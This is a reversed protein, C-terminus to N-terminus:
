FVGQAGLAGMGVWVTAGRGRHSRRTAVRGEKDTGSTTFLLVTGAAVGIAGMVLGVNAISAYTKARDVDPTASLPCRPPSGCIDDLESRKVYAAIGFGAAVSLGAAGLGYAGYVWPSTQKPAPPPAEPARLVLTMETGSTVQKTVIAPTEGQIRIIFVQSGPDLLIEFTDFGPAEPPGPPRTGALFEPTPTEQLTRELPRGNVTVLAGKPAITVRARALKGTVEGLYKRAENLMPEELRGWQGSEHATIAALFGKRARTYRALARECYAMDYLTIPHPRLAASREFAELADSWQGQHALTTGLRFADRAGQVRPDVPEPTEAPAATETPATSEAAEDARARGSFALTVSAALFLNRLM